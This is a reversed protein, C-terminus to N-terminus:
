KASTFRKSPRPIAAPLTGGPGPHPRRHVGRSAGAPPPHRRPAPPAPPLGLADRVADRVAGAAAKGALRSLADRLRLSLGEPRGGLREVRGALAARSAALWSSSAIM